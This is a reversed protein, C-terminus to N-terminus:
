ASVGGAARSRQSLVRRLARGVRARMEGFANVRYKPCVCTSCTRNGQGLGALATSYQPSTRVAQLSGGSLRGAAPQFFCPRVTGDAEVVSSWEPANCDPAEGGEDARLFAQAMATLKRGDETVFGGLEGARGLTGIGQLLAAVDDVGPRLAARAKPDGGFAGSEVDVPLFSVSDVGLDRAALVTAQLASANRASLTCRAILRPRVKLALVDAVSAKLRALMRAGRLEDHIEAPGDLSLYIEDVVGSLWRAARSLGLGNSAIQVSLGARKGARALTELHECLLPEGGTFLVSRAGLAGAERIISLREGESLETQIKGSSKWISCHACTQDCRTSVHM